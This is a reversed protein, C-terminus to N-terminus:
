RRHRLLRTSFGYAKHSNLGFPRVTTSLLRTSHSKRAASPENRATSTQKPRVEVNGATLRYCFRNATFLLITTIPTM